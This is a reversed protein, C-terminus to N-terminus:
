RRVETIGITKTENPALSIKQAKGALAELRSAQNWESAAEDPVAVVFYDGAPMPATVSFSGTRSATATGFWRFAATPDAWLRTAQPFVLVTVGGKVDGSVTGRLFSRNPADLIVRIESVNRDDIVLPMDTIDTNGVVAKNIQLAANVSLQYRGPLANAMTFTGDPKVEAVTSVMADRTLAFLQISRPAQTQRGGTMAPWEVVGSVTLAPRAVVSIGTVDRDGVSIPLRAWVLPDTASAPQGAVAGAGRGGVFTLATGTPAGPSNRAVAPASVELLYDGSPVGAFDFRGDPQVLMPMLATAAAFPAGAPRLRIMAATLNAAGVVTGSVRASYVIPTRININTRDDGDALTIKTARAFSAASPHFAPAYTQMGEVSAADAGSKLARAAVAILQAPQAALTNLLVGDFPVPPRACACVFYEGTRLGAFRYVGRDDTFATAAGVEVAQGNVVQRRFATVIMGPVPEGNDDTVTGTIGAFRHLPVDADILKEDAAIEIFRFRSAPVMSYGPREVSLQYRGATLGPFVFRGRSDTSVMRLGGGRGSAQGGVLTVTANSLGTSSSADFVRGAIMSTAPGAAQSQAPAQQSVPTQALPAAMGCLCAAALAASRIWTAQM